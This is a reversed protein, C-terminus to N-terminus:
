GLHVSDSTESSTCVCRHQSTIGPSGQRDQNLIWTGPCPVGPKIEPRPLDVHGLAILGRAVAVSGQEPLGHAVAGSAWVGQLGHEAVSDPEAARFAPRRPLAGSAVFDTYLSSRSCGSPYSIFLDKKLAAWEKSSVSVSPPPCGGTVGQLAGRTWRPVRCFSSAPSLGPLLGRSGVRWTLRAGLGVKLARRKWM